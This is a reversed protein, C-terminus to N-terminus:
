LLQMAGRCGQGVCLQQRNKQAGSDAALRCDVKGAVQQTLVSTQARQELGVLGAKAGAIAEALGFINLKLGHKLHAAAMQELCQFAALAKASRGIGAAEQLRLQATIGILYERAQKEVVAMAHDFELFQEAAGDIVGADM